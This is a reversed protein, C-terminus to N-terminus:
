TSRKVVRIPLEKLMQITINFEVNDRMQRIADDQKQQWAVEKNGGCSSLTVDDAILELTYEKLLTALFAVMEVQAFPKGPCQRSGYGFPFYVDSDDGKGLWRAPDFDIAQSHHLQARRGPTIDRPSWTNPNQMAGAVNILCTTGSPIIHAEGKSDILNTPAVTLRFIFQVVNYNRLVEKLVAGLYGKNLTQYDSESNWDETPRNGLVRDLEKQIEKQHEPYIALLIMAFALSSGTTEHGAMLSFFINGLVSGEPLPRSGVHSPHDSGAVVISELINKRLKGSIRNIDNLVKARFDQMYRTLDTFATFTDKCVRFPLRALIARPVMFILGLHRLVTFIASEFSVQYGAELAAEGPSYERWDMPHDFFVSSIVHLALRSTWSKVVPVVFGDGAWRSILTNTQHITEKWVTPLTSPNLGYTVIKRHNKWEEGEVSGITPGWIDYFRLMDVPVQVTPLSFLQKIIAPDSTWMMNNTPTALFLTDSGAEHFPEYGYKWINSIQSLPLWPLRTKSPLLNILPIFLSSLMMWWVDTIFVPSYFTPFGATEALKFNKRWALIKLSINAFIFVAFSASFTSVM